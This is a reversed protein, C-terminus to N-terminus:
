WHTPRRIPKKGTPVRDPLLCARLDEDTLHHRTWDAHKSLSTLSNRHVKGAGPPKRPTVVGLRLQPFDARIAELAPEADSDNSCLVLQHFRGSCADRYMALALNVDTQKEELKWVLVRDTRDYAKAPDFRPLLTGGRDHSHTGLKMSFRPGHLTQLARHYAQQAETSAQGHTAFKALCHASFYRVVGVEASPDQEGLLRDFLRVVDLWKYRTGRIRGYYLNYGDIYVSTVLQTSMREIGKPM